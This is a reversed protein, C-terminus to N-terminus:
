GNDMSAPLAQAMEAAIEQAARLPDPANIIARGVVLYSAGARVAEAPTMVRKQDDHAATRPRVGPTVLLFDDNAMAARVPAVEHPSAVVGDMGCNAALRALKIVQAEPADTVGIEALTAADASTLVTVAILNPRPLGERAATEATMEAARRMMESGGSAHVNFLSVGLRVAECCASAVTNPIDHFKLDLFVRGGAGVIERVFEPGAATFLQSGIKFMGAHGCLRAVLERAAQPTEVDLAIILKDTM